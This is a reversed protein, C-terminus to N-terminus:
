TRREVSTLISKTWRWGLVILGTAIALDVWGVPSGTLWGIPDAGLMSGLALGAIPLLALVQGTARASALEARLERRAALRARESDALRAVGDALSAGTSESVSWLASLGALSSDDSERRLADAVDGGLRLAGITREFQGSDVHELLAASLAAPPPRGALLEARLAGLLAVADM